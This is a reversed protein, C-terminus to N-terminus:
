LQNTDLSIVQDPALIGGATIVELRGTEQPYQTKVKASEIQIDARIWTTM